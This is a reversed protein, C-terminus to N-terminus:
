QCLCNYNTSSVEKGGFGVTCTTSWNPLLNYGPRLGEGGVNTSCVYFENGNTYIGSYIAGKGADRCVRECFRGNGPVWSLSQSFAPRATSNILSAVLIVIFFAISLLGVIYGVRKQVQMHKTVQKGILRANLHPRVSWKPAIALLKEDIM